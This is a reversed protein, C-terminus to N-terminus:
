VGYDAEDRAALVVAADAEIGEAVDDPGARVSADDDPTLAGAEDGMAFVGVEEGAAPACHVRGGEASKGAAWAATRGDRSGPLGM